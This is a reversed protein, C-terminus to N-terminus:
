EVTGEGLKSEVESLKVSVIKSVGKEQMTVGFLSDAQNMTPKRHTIVIFQTENAFRKLYSAFRDVNADDLAAEIEDLICFPMPRAKLIAFLIAIATLAREGGSLLSIKKLSKGPPSAVIDVGASLPDEANEYDIQLEAKGGGFLEKFTTKFNENIDNFGENFIKLMEARVDSLVSDLDALAKQLDDRQTVMEDYHAIEEDYEAEANPNVLGLMTINRKLVTAEQTAETISFEEKRFPLCGEYDLGYAEEMRLRMNELGVEVRSIEGELRIRKEAHKQHKTQLATREEDLKLQTENLENKRATASEIKSEVAAVAAKEEETLESASLRTELAFVEEKASDRESETRVVRTILDEKEATLRAIEQNARDIAATLKACEVKLSELTGNKAAREAKLQECQTKQAELEEQASMRLSKLQEENQSSSAEELELARLRKENEKLISEYEEKALALEQMRATITQVRQKLTFLENNADRYTENWKELAAKAEVKLQESEAIARKLTVIQKEKAAIKDKCEQIKRETSLLSNSNTKRSGGTMRGSTEILDGDLTVIRFANGYKKSVDTANAINDCILTNGLLNSAVNYYYDDFRVLELATGVVGRENAARQIERTDPRPRMSKVPLFSARGGVKKLYEILYKTDDANPTVINQMAGGIATEIATEYKQDTFIVDAVVGHLRNGIDPNTKALSLLRRVSDTYGEFRNKLGIYMELSEGLSALQATATLLEQNFNNITEEMEEVEETKENYTKAGGSTFDELRLVDKNVLSLEDKLDAQTQANKTLAAKIEAIKDAVAEKRAALTGLSMKLESLDEASSLQSVRNDETLREYFGIKEDLTKISGELLDVQAEAEAFRESDNKKQLLLGDIQENLENVRANGGAIFEEAVSLQSRITTLRENLLNYEGSKKENGVSLSLREDQLDNIEDDAIVLKHRNNE